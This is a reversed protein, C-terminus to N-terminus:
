RRSALRTRATLWAPSPTSLQATQQSLALPPHLRHHIPLHEPEQHRPALLQSSARPTSCVQSTATALKVRLYQHQLSSFVDTYLGCRQM